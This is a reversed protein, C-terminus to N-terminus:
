IDAELLKKHAEKVKANLYDQVLIVYRYFEKSGPAHGSIRRVSTEDVGMLLLTTIATRRMTHATVHDYFRYCKGKGTKIEVAIGQRHRIRLVTHDWGALRIMKKINYNFNSNSIRPLIYPKAKCKYKEIIRIAYDPLPIHVETGTKHTHLALSTDDQRYQIDNQRVRMLDSFRLGVTCGFVFIDKTRKLCASLLREFESDIILFRLQSPTLVVPTFHETPTRFKKYFEGVPFAKEVTLYRFLVKIVKFVSGAYQDYYKKQRYLFHAFKKYFRNWYNKEQQIVRMSCRHLLCIRLPERQQNEFQRLLKAVFLYQGITTKGAKKGSPLVRRGSVCANIFQQM